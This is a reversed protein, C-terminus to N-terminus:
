KVASVFKGFAASATSLHSSVLRIYRLDRNQNCSNILHCWTSLCLRYHLRSPKQQSSALSKYIMGRTKLQLLGEPIRTKQMSQTYLSTYICQSCYLYLLTSYWFGSQNQCTQWSCIGTLFCSWCKFLTSMTWPALMLLLGVSHGSLNSLPEQQPLRLSWTLFQQTTVTGFNTLSAQVHM